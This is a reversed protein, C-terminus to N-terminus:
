FYPADAPLGLLVRGAAEVHVPLGAAHQFATHVDRFRRELGARTFVGGTGAARVLLDVARVGEGMAHTIALRARAIAQDLAVGDVGDGVADWATGVAELVFARAAGVVAEAQGVAAQVERRRALPVPSATSRATSLEAFDDLAGRALGLAVGATPSWTVVMTLRPHFVRGPQTRAVGLSAVRHRPVFRDDVVFDHSGTARMGLASWTEVVRGDGVPMVFARMKPVPPVIATPDDAVGGDDIICTGIYWGAQEVNSAFDWHGQVRFGGPEPVATGLPRASGALRVRAPGPGVVEALGDPPLWGLYSSLATSISCCWAASGDARALHETVRFATLPDVEPGGASVPLYLQFLGAATMDEILDAPLRGEREIDPACRRLRAGLAEAAAVVESSRMAASGEARGVRPADAVPSTAVVETGQASVM